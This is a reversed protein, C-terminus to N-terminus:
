TTVEGVGAGFEIECADCPGDGPRGHRCTWSGVYPDTEADCSVHNITKCAGCTIDEGDSYWGPRPDSGPIDVGCNACELLAITPHSIM